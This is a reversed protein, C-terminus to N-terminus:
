AGDETILNRPGKGLLGALLYRQRGTTYAYLPHNGAAHTAAAEGAPWPSQGTDTGNM